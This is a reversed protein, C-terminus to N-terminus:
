CPDIRIHGLGFANNPPTIPSIPTLVHQLCTVEHDEHLRTSIAELKAEIHCKPQTRRECAIEWATWRLTILPLVSISTIDLRFSVIDLAWPSQCRLNISNRMDRWAAERSIRQMEGLPESGCSRPAEGEGADTSM